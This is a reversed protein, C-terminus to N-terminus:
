RMMERAHIGALSPGMDRPGGGPGGRPLFSFYFIFFLRRDLRACLRGSMHSAPSQVDRRLDSRPRRPQAEEFASLYYERESHKGKQFGEGSFAFISFSLLFKVPRM